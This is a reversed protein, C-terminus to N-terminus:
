RAAARTGAWAGTTNLRGRRGLPTLPLTAASKANM